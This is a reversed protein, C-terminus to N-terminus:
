SGTVQVCRRSAIFNVISDVSRIDDIDLDAMSIVIGFREEIEALLEVLALSDLAGSALLDESSDKVELMLKDRMLACVDNALGNTHM